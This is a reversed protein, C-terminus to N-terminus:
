VQIHEGQGPKLRHFSMTQVSGSPLSLNTKPARETYENSAIQVLKSINNQIINIKSGLQKELTCSFDQKATRYNDRIVKSFSHGQEYTETSVNHISPM